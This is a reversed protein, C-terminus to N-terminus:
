ALRWRTPCGEEFILNERYRALANNVATHYQQRLSVTSVDFDYKTAIVDVIEAITMAVGVDRLVDLAAGGWGGPPRRGAAQRPRIPVVDGESWESDLMRIVHSLHHLSAEIESRRVQRAPAAERYADQDPILRTVRRPPCDIRAREGLLKAYVATLRIALRKDEM